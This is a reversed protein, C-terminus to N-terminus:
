NKLQNLKLTKLPKFTHFILRIREGPQWGKQISVYELSSILTSQLVEPYEQYTSEKSVNSMLYVGDYNFLTTIGIYREQGQLRGERLTASGLGVVLEHTIGPGKPSALLWPTGGM